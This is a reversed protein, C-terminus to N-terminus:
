LNIVIHRSIKRAMLYNNFEEGGVHGLAWAAMVKAWGGFRAEFDKVYKIAEERPM